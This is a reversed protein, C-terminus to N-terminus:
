SLFEDSLNLLVDAREKAERTFKIRQILRFIFMAFSIVSTLYLILCTWKTDDYGLLSTSLWILVVTIVANFILRFNLADSTTGHKECVSGLAEYGQKKVNSKRARRMKYLGSVSFQSTQITGDQNLSVIDPYAENQLILCKSTCEQQLVTIIESCYVPHFLLAEDKQIVVSKSQPIFEWSSFSIEGNVSMLLRDNENFLLIVHEDDGTFMKWSHSRLITPLEEMQSTLAVQKPIKISFTKM